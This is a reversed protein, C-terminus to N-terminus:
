SSMKPYISPTGFSFLYTTVGDTYKLILENTLLYHRDYLNNALLRPVVVLNHVALWAEYYKTIIDSLITIYL